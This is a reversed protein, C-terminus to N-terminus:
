GGVICAVAALAGFLGAVQSRSMREDLVTRALIVTTAPYLSALVVMLSLLGRHIAALIALNATMDLLGAMVIATGGEARRPIPSRGVRVLLLLAVCLSVVRASVLPWPLSAETTAAMLIYFGAFGVGALLAELLLTPPVRTPSVARGTRTGRSVLAIAALGLLVGIVNVVSLREGFAVGWLVPLAANSIATIPAVVAMPGRSLCHYLCGIGLLGFLGALAGYALDRSAFTEAMAPAVALILALGILHSAAVVVLVHTRRAAMGGFFDSAGFLLASLLALAAAM